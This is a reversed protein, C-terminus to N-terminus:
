QVCDNRGGVTTLGHKGTSVPFAETLSAKAHVMTPARRGGAKDKKLDDSVAALSLIRFDSRIVRRSIIGWNGLGLEQEYYM